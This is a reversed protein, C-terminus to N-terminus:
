RVNVAIWFLQILLDDAVDPSTCTILWILMKVVPRFSVMLRLTIKKRVRVSILLSIFGSFIKRCSSSM